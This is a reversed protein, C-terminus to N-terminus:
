PTVALVLAHCETLSPPEWRRLMREIAADPVRAERERNRRMTEAMPSEVYSIRIRAGYGANREKRYGGDLMTSIVQSRMTASLCTADWIFSRRKGLLAKAREKATQIVRGQEDAPDISMERRLADLSVVPQGALLGGPATAQTIWSSKGSGPVGSMITVTFDSSTTDHLAVHPRHQEADLFYAFRAHDNYFPFPGEYCGLDKAMERFLAVNDLIRDRDASIRGRADAEAVLALLRNPVALSTGTLARDAQWARDTGLREVLFFPIQHVAVIACVQERLRFPLDMEWLIRRAEKAGIGSHHPNGIRGDIEERTQPKAVDHLLAAAFTILREREPLARWEPLGLLEEVVMRTHVWVDGEAHHIPDQTSGRMARVWAFAADIGSWDLRWDPAAPLFAGISLM